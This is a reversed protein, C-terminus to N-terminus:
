PGAVLQLGTFYGNLVGGGQGSSWFTAGGAAPLISDIRIIGSLTNSGAATSTVLSEFDTFHFKFSTSAPIFSAPDVPVAQAALPLGLMGAILLGTLSAFLRQKTM